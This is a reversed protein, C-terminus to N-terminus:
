YKVDPLYFVNPDTGADENLVMGNGALAKERLEDADGFLRAGAPCAAVCAPEPTEGEATRSMCFDCKDVTMAPYATYGRAEYETLDEGFYGKADAVLYCADYPCAEMCTKCGVCKEKNIVVVGNERKETAGNPCAVVCLPKDCQNCLKPVFTVTASPYSGSEERDVWARLVGPPTANAGKCSTSCAHCGVCKKLDILMGYAM